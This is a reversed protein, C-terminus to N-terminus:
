SSRPVPLASRRRLIHITTRVTHRINRWMSPHSGEENYIIRSRLTRTSLLRQITEFRSVVEHITPRKTPDDQIMDTVLDVM